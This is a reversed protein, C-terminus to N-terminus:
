YAGTLIEREARRAAELAAEPTFTIYAGLAPELRGTRAILARTVEVPSLDRARLHRAVEELSLYALEAEGVAGGAGAAGRPPPGSGVTLALRLTVWYRWSPISGGGRWGGWDACDHAPPVAGM